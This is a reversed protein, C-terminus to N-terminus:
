QQPFSNFCVSLLTRGTASFSLFPFPILICRSTVVADNQAPDLYFLMIIISYKKNGVFHDSRIKNKVQKNCELALKYGLEVRRDRAQVM